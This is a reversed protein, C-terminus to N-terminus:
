KKISYVFEDCCAVFVKLKDIDKAAMLLNSNEAYAHLEDAFKDVDARITKITVQPM